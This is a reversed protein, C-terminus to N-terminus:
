RRSPWHGSLQPLRRQAEPMITPAIGVLGLSFLIITSPLLLLDHSLLMLLAMVSPIEWSHNRRRGAMYFALVVFALPVLWGVPGFALAFLLYSNHPVLEHASELGLGTWPGSQYILIARRLLMERASASDVTGEKLVQENLYALSDGDVGISWQPEGLLGQVSAIGKIVADRAQGVTHYAGNAAVYFRDNVILAVLVWAALGLGVCIERRGIPLRLPRIQMLMPTIAIIFVLVSVLLSSRSLTVFIAASILFVFSWLWRPGVARWSVAAGLVLQAAAINPGEALGAARGVTNTFGHVFLIDIMCFVANFLTAYLVIRIVRKGAHVSLVAVAACLGMAVLYNKAVWGLPHLPVLAASLSCLALIPWTTNRIDRDRVLVAIVTALAALWYGYYAVHWLQYESLTPGFFSILNTQFGVIALSALYYSLQRL